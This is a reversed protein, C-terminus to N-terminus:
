YCSSLKLNLCLLLYLVVVCASSLPCENLLAMGKRCWYKINDLEFNNVEIDPFKKKKTFIVKM